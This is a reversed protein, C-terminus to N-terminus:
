NIFDCKEVIEPSTIHFDESDSFNAHIDVACWKSEVNTFNTNNIISPVTKSGWRSEDAICIAGGHNTSSTNVFNCNDMKIGFAAIL